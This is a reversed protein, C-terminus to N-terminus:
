HLLGLQSSARAPSRASCKCVVFCVWSTYGFFFGKDLVKEGDKVYVGLLTAVIGSLYMQINRVWLSTDSSKLVKEFYVGQFM